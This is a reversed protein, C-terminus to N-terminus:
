RAGTTGTGLLADVLLDATQLENFNLERWFVVRVGYHEARELNELALGRYQERDFILVATVEADTELLLRSLALGDGGNNGKGCFLYIKKQTFDGLQGKIAKLVALAAREMLIIGPMGYKEQALQDILKMQGARAVKM